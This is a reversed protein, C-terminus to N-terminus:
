FIGGYRQVIEDVRTAGSWTPHDIHMKVPAKNWDELARCRRMLQPYFVVFTSCTALCMGLTTLATTAPTVVCMDISESLMIPHGQLRSNYKVPSAIVYAHAPNYALPPYIDLNNPVWEDVNNVPPFLILPIAAGILYRVNEMLFLRLVCARCRPSFRHMEQGLIFLSNHTYVISMVSAPQVPGSLPCRINLPGATSNSPLHHSHPEYVVVYPDNYSLTGWQKEDPLTELQLKHLDIDGLPIRRFDSPEVPASMFTVNTTCGSLTIDGSTHNVIAANYTGRLPPDMGSNLGATSQGPETHTDDAM